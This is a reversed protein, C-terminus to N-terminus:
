AAAIIAGMPRGASRIFAIVTDIGFASRAELVSRGRM